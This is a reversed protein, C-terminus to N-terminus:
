AKMKDPNPVALRDRQGPDIADCKASFLDPDVDAGEGKEGKMDRKVETDNKSEILQGAPLWRPPSLTGEEVNPVSGECGRM